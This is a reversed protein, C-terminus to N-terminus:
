ENQALFAPTGATEASPPFPWQPLFVELWLRYNPIYPTPTPITTPKPQPTTVVVVVEDPKALSLKRAENEIFDRSKGQKLDLKLQDRTQALDKLEARNEKLLRSKQSYEKTLKLLNIGLACVFFGLIIYFTLHSNDQNRQNTKINYSM